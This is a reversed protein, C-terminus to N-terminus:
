QIGGQSEVGVGVGVPSPQSEVEICACGAIRASKLPTTLASKM